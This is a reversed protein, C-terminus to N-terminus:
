FDPMAYSCFLLADSARVTIVFPSLRGFFLWQAPQSGNLEYARFSLAHKRGPLDLRQHLFHERLM